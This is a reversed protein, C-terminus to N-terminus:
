WGHRQVQRRLRHVQYRIQGGAPQLHRHYLVREGRQRRYGAARRNHTAHECLSRRCGGGFLQKDGCPCFCHRKQNGRLEHTSVLSYVTIDADIITLALSSTLSAVSVWRNTAVECQLDLKGSVSFTQPGDLRYYYEEGFPSCVDDFSGSGGRRINSLAVQDNNKNVVRYAYDAWSDPISLTLKPLPNGPFPPLSTQQKWNLSFGTAGTSALNGVTNFAAAAPQNSFTPSAAGPLGTTSNSGTVQAYTYGSGNIDGKSYAGGTANVVGIPGYLDALQQTFAQRMSLEDRLYSIDPEVTKILENRKDYVSFTHLFESNADNAAEIVSVGRLDRNPSSIQRTTNGNTDYLFIKTVGDETNSKQIKGLTNYEIFEQWGDGLSKGSIEGFANYATKRIEGSRVDFQVTNRGLADYQFTKVVDAWQPQGNADLTQLQLAAKATSRAVQRAADLEYVTVYGNADTVSTRDGNANYAYRTIRDDSEVADNPDTGREIQRRINGLGDYETDSVPRVDQGTFDKYGPAQVRTQRGLRDYVIDTTNWLETSGDGLVAVRESTTLVHGLGDYRYTTVADASGQIRAGQTNVYEYAVNLTRQETMRGLADLQYRTIRDNAGGLGLRLQVPDRLSAAAATNDQRAYASLAKAYRTQTTAQAQYSEYDWATAYGEQDVSLVKRGNRDYYHYISYGRGDIEQVVDGTANYVLRRLTVVENLQDGLLGLEIGGKDNLREEWHIVAKRWVETLRGLADYVTTTVRDATPDAAPAAPATTGASAPLAVRSAYAAETVTGDAAYAYATYAGDAAIQAIKRDLADYYSLTRSGGSIQGGAGNANSVTEIVNGRADYRTVDAPTVLVTTKSAVDYAKYATGLKLVQRDLGDFAYSTSRQEPAGEAEISWTRNGRWDYGYRNVVDIFSTRATDKATKVPLTEKTLLGRRDYEFVFSGGLQNTYGTKDFADYDYSEAALAADTRTKLRGLHDFSATTVADHMTDALVYSGSAPATQVVSPKLTESVSNQVAKYYQTTATKNGFADYESAAAYGQADVYFVNRNNRDFYFYESCNRADTLKVVNGFADYVKRTIGDLADTVSTQSGLKDYAYHTTYRELAAAKQADTLNAAAAAAVGRPDIRETVHGDADYAYRTTTAEATGWGRTEELVRANADYVYHTTSAEARGFGLTKDTVRGAGDYAYHTIFGEANILDVLRGAADRSHQTVVPSVNELSIAGLFQELKPVDTGTVQAAHRLTATVNGLADFQQETVYGEADAKFRQHGAADYAYYEVHDKPHLQASVLAAVGAVTPTDPCTIKNAYRKAAVIRGASDYVTESLYGEADYRYRQRGAADYVYYEARDDASVVRASVNTAVNALTLTSPRAVVSAYRKTAIVRSAADYLQETVYGLADFTYRQHGAADYVRYESRDNKSDLRAAVASAISAETRTAPLTITKAYHKEATVHGGRDYVSETVYGLADITYRRRGAADYVHYTVSDNKADLRPALASVVSDESLVGPLAITNAYQKSAIVSGARDYVNETVAGLADISFRVRGAADYVSWRKEDRAADAVPVRTADWSGKQVTAYRTTLVVRGASDYDTQTVGGEADVAYIQRGDDDYVYQVLAARAGSQAALADRIQQETLTAASGLVFDLLTREAVLHGQADYRRENVTGVADITYQLRGLADYVYRTANRLADRQLVVNGAADYEYSTTLRLGDPDVIEDACRGLVDYLYQTTHAAATGAAQTVSLVRGQADYATSTKLQSGTSVNDVIVDTLQGAANFTYSTVIGLADTLKVNRGQGDYTYSTTLNLGNPDVRRSLERNAADFTYLTTTVSGDNVASGAVLALGSTTSSLNGAADYDNLTLNGLADTVSLLQGNANYSYTTSQTGQSVRWVQGHVTYTTTVQVGEATIMTVGRTAADYQFTVSHQLADIQKVVREFADYVTTRQGQSADVLVVARGANDAGNRLYRYSSIQGRADTQSRVRGFADYETSTSVALGNPDSLSTSLLGRRDYSLTKSLRRATGDGLDATSHWLQGFATYDNDTVNGLTDIAQQILGRRNFSSLTRNDKTTDLLAAVKAALTSNLMGGCLDKSDAVSLRKAHTVQSVVEGFTDYSTERVEGGRVPDKLISCVLRGAADYYFVTTNNREDTASLRRGASDYTYTRTNGRADTEGKIRDWEDYVTGSTRAESSGAGRQTSTLRGLSDYVYRTCVSSSGGDDSTTVTETDLEGTSTYTRTTLEFLKSSPRLSELRLGGYSLYQVAGTANVSVTRKSLTGWRKISTVRDSADYGYETLHGEADLEGAVRGQTDYLWIQRQDQEHAPPRLASVVGTARLSADTPSYYRTQQVKRGASDYVWETLYGEADLAVWLLGDADYFNRTVRDKDADGQPRAADLSPPMAVSSGAATDIRVISSPTAYAKTGTVRSAGDYLTETVFGDADQMGVLRGALDYYRTSIRDLADASPRVATADLALAGATPQGTADVLQALWSADKARAYDISQVLRGAGDYVYETVQGAADINAVKRGAADYATWSRLGTPDQVMRLQGAADYFYRTTGLATAAASYATSWLLQGAATYQSVTYQGNALALTTQSRADDYTYSTCAQAQDKSLTIRGLGDYAYVTGTTSGDVDTVSKTLLQGFADYVFVQETMASRLVAGASVTAAGYERISILQGRLDYGYDTQQALALDNASLGDAWTTLDTLSPSTSATFTKNTYVMAGCRQGLANYQYQTVRGNPSVVFRLRQNTGPDYIYCTTRAGAPAAPGAAGDPDPITYLTESLLRNASDYIRKLVNGAADTRSTLAGSGNYTYSTRQSRAGALVKLNVDTDYETQTNTAAMLNGNGDYEFRQTLNGGGSAAGRILVLRKASDYGLTTKRGMPDAVDVCTLTTILGKDDAYTVSAAAYSLTTFGDTASGWKWARGASDYEISLTSGDTQTISNLRGAADYGYQVWYSGGTSISRDEPSLDTRVYQLRGNVDYEYRVRTRTAAVSDSAGASKTGYQTDIQTLRKASDYLLTVVEQKVALSGTTSTSISCILGSADDYSVTVVNAQVDTIKMLRCASSGPSSAGYTEQTGTDGDTWTWQGSAADFSLTDYTGAGATGVYLGKTSSYTYTSELGDADMRKVSSGATNLTGTLNSVRRYYGIRWNDGNDGDWVGQSNYTRLLSVDEGLGVLFEDRNQVVLNGTAANVTVRDGARGLTSQGLEGDTGVLERSTNVLGAGAGTVVSVM